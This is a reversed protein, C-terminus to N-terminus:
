HVSVHQTSMATWCVCVRMWPVHWRQVRADMACAMEACACGHCMGDRCVRMWPVHWRHVQQPQLYVFIRVCQHMYVHMCLTEIESHLVHAHAVFPAQDDGRCQRKAVFANLRSSALGFDRSARANLVSHKQLSERTHLSFM